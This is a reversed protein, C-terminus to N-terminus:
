PFLGNKSRRIKWEGESQLPDSLYARKLVNFMGGGGVKNQPSLSQSDVANSVSMQLFLSHARQNPTRYRLFPNLHSIPTPCIPAMYQLSSTHHHPFRQPPSPHLCPATPTHSGSCPWDVRGHIIFCGECIFYGM